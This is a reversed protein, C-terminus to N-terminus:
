CDSNQTIIAGEHVYRQVQMCAQLYTDLRHVLNGGRAHRATTISM